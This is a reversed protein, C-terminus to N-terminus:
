GFDWATTPAIFQSYVIVSEKSHSDRKVFPNVTTAVLTLGTRGLRM